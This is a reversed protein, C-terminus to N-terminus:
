RGAVGGAAAAAAAANANVVRASMKEAIIGAV